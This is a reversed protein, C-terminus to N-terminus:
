KEELEEQIRNVLDTDDDLAWELAARWARKFTYYNCCQPCSEENITREQKEWWKEFAKM